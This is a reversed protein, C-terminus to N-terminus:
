WHKRSHEDAEHVRVAPFSPNSGGAGRDRDSRMPDERDQDEVRNSRM